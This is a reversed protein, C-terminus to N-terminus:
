SRKGRFVETYRNMFGYGHKNDQVAEQYREKAKVEEEREEKAMREDMEDFELDQDIRAEPLQSKITDLGEFQEGLTLKEVRCTFYGKEGNFVSKNQEGHENLLSPFTLKLIYPKLYFMFTSGDVVYEAKEESAYKSVQIQIYVFREDQSVKFESDSKEM